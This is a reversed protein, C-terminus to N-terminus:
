IGSDNTTIDFETAYANYAKCTDQLLCTDTVTDKIAELNEIIQLAFGMAAHWGIHCHMLWVGPNDTIFALVLHGGLGVTPDWPMMAVDRRPPNVLNLEVASTYLGTGQALVFFDHGHLHIPHPFPIPSDIIVYVWEGLDPVEIALNGSYEPITGNKVIDLLTPDRYESQFTTGSLSWKYLNPSGGNGGITVTKYIEDELEGANMAYYPVLSAYPEDQCGAIYTNATSTPVGNAGGEYHIIGKINDAYTITACADQNDSRMWYDDVDQDFTVLVDYRQGINIFLVDTDYPVIPVFDNAIVTMKHSDIYFAFTSQIATNVLRLLYTKGPTVTMAFREGTANAAGDTGWINMGNILGTDLVRPGNGPTPGVDQAAQYMEDVPVHSWDQLVIMEEAEYATDSSSPGHIIMPGFVGEYTQIAYHSHYWSTGYNSAKFRYTMSEGPAIPCQTISSVGDMENTYNQRQGHWHITSGNNQMSNKVNVVIEDGWNAEILPGPMQGNIALVLREFGDPSLTTNTIEFDYERTVCTIPMVEYSNDLATYGCFSDPDSGPSTGNETCLSTFTTFSTEKSSSGTGTIPSSVTSNASYSVSGSATTTSGGTGTPGVIPTTSTGNFGTTIPQSHTHVVTTGNDTCLSTFTTYSTESTSSDTVSSSPGTGVVASSSGSSYSGTPNPGAVSSSPGSAYSGTPYPGASSSAASVSYSGTPYPGAASSSANASNSPLGSTGTGSLPASHTHLTTYTTGNATETCTTEYTTFSSPASSVSTIPAVYSSGASVSGSSSSSGTVPSIPSSSSESASSASSGGYTPASPASPSASVSSSGGYGPATPASSSGSISSSAASGTSSSESIPSVPASSGVSISASSSGYAPPSSAESSSSRGYSPPSPAASSSVFSSSSSGGYVPATPGSSSVPIGSSSTSETVPSLPSSSSAGDSVTITTEYTSTVTSVKTYTTTLTSSGSTYVSSEDCSTAYTTTVTITSEIGSSYGSPTYSGYPIPSISTSGAASTPVTIDSDPASSRSSSSASEIESPSAASTSITELPSSSYGPPTYSGYPVPTITSSAPETVPSIEISISSSVSYVPASPTYDGASSPSPNHEYTQPSSQGPTTSYESSSPQASETSSGGDYGPAGGQGNGNGGPQGGYGWGGTSAPKTYNWGTATGNLTMNGWGTRNHHSWSHKGWGAREAELKAAEAELKAIEKEVTKVEKVVKARNFGPIALAPGISALFALSWVATRM